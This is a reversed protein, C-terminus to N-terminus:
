AMEILKVEETAKWAMVESAESGKTRQESRSVDRQHGLMDDDGFRGCLKVGMGMHEGAHGFMQM